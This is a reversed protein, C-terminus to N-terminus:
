PEEPPTIIALVTGADVSEGERVLIDTLVGARTARLENEMKMAEIVVVPQRHGVQEGVKALVRVVKGPMPAVIRQPGTASQGTEDKRGWRRRSNLGVVISAPGLGVVLQGTVPDQALSVERSEVIGTDATTVSGPEVLLSLTHSGVPAADVLWEREAVAVSFRSERRNVTVTTSRGNVEVEFQM